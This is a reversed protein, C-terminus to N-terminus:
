LGGSARSARLRRSGLRCDSGDGLSLANPVLARKRLTFGGSAILSAQRQHRDLTRPRQNTSLLCGIPGPARSVAFPMRRISAVRSNSSVRWAWIWPEGYAWGGPVPAVNACAAYPARSRPSIKGGRGHREDPDDVPPKGV